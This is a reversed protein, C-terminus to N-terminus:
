YQCLGGASDEMNWNGALGVTASDEEVADYGSMGLQSAYARSQAEIEADAQSRRAGSM